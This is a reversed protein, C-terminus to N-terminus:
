RRIGHQQTDEEAAAQGAAEAGHFSAMRAEPAQLHETSLALPKHECAVGIEPALHSRALTPPTEEGGRKSEWMREWSRCRSAIITTCFISPSTTPLHNTCGSDKTRLLGNVPRGPSGELM